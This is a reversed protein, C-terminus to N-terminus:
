PLSLYKKEPIFAKIFNQQLIKLIDKPNDSIKSKKDDTYLESITQNQMHQRELINFFSKSFKEVELDWRINALIKAGRAQKSELSYLEDQLNHIFPRIEPKFNEKKYLNRLRKKLRSIRINEQTTSNKSFGRATQKIKIKTNEWWDSLSSFNGQKKKSSSLLDSISSCFDKNQLLTNNLLWLDKGTKTKSSLREILLANYHDSFSIMKHNIKTNNAIKIDTYVRDIRSRTGSARDYRTFESTDPNERRWLDELGHDMILKSLTLNSHCRYRKQTKNREDRDM